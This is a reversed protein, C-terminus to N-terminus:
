SLQRCMRAPTALRGRLEHGHVPRQPAGVQKITKGVRRPREPDRVVMRLEQTMLGARPDPIRLQCSIRPAPEPVLESLQARRAPRLPPRNVRRIARLEAPERGLDHRKGPRESGIAAPGCGPAILQGPVRSFRDPQHDPIQAPWVQEILLPDGWPSPRAHLIRSRRLLLRRRRPPPLPPPKSTM